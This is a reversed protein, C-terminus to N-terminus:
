YRSLTEIGDRYGLKQCERIFQPRFNLTGHVLDGLSHSPYIGRFRVDPYYAQFRKMEKSLGIVVMERFGLEYLPRIPVNDTLGGDRYYYGDIEVPEHIIPMASSALIIDEITGATRGDIRMYEGHYVSEGLFGRISNQYEDKTIMRSVSCIVPIKSRKLKVYSVYKRILRLLEERSFTGEKGDLMAWETDFVSLLDVESWAMVAKRYNGSAFLATNIAGISAGSIGGIEHTIGLEQMARFVGIQYAGKAGGGSLVLGCSQNLSHKHIMFM